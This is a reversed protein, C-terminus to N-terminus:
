RLAGPFIQGFVFLPLFGVSFSEMIIDASCFHKAVNRRLWQPLQSITWSLVTVKGVNDSRLPNAVHTDDGWMLLSADANAFM